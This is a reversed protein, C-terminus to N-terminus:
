IATPSAVLCTERLAFAENVQKIILRSDGLVCLRSICKYLLFQGFLLLKMSLMMALVLSSLKSLCPSMVAMLLISNRGEEKFLSSGDFVLIGTAIEFSDMIEECLM